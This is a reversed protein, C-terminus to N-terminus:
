SRRQRKGDKTGALTADIRLGMFMQVKRLKGIPLTREGLPGSCRPSVLTGEGISKGHASFVTANADKGILLGIEDAPLRHWKEESM